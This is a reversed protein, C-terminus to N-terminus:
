TFDTPDLAHSALHGAYGVATALVSCGMLVVRRKREQWRAGGRVM